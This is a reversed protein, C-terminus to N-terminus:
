PCQEQREREGEVREGERGGREGKEERLWACLRRGWTLRNKYVAFAEPMSECAEALAPGSGEDRIEILSTLYSRVAFTITGTKPLCTLTHHEVRLFSFEPNFDTKQSPSTPNKLTNAGDYPLHLTSSNCQIAWNLRAVSSGREMREFCRVVGKKLRGDYGPVPKHIESVSMGVKAPPLLGQPFCAVFGQLIFENRENPVMLWFDEEVNTALHYLMATHDRLVTSISHQSGTVLNYFVDGKIRFITPFRKPLLDLIIEEYLERIAPYSAKSTGLCVKPFNDVLQKRYTMRDLYNRDIRIWDEKKSKKIGMAVHHKTEFPRYKIPPVTQYQLNHLPEINETTAVASAPVYTNIKKKRQLIVVYLRALFTVIQSLVAVLLAYSITISILRGLYHM